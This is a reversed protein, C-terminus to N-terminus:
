NTGEKKGGEYKAAEQVFLIWGHRLYAMINANIRSSLDASVPLAENSNIRTGGVDVVPHKFKGKLTVGFPLHIPSKELALHYYMDGALNNVGGIEMLYDGFGVKFPNVQLLDDHFAGSININDIHIPESGDILMLHTIREIKGQRAFKLNSGKIDFRANLSEPNMFMDPFMDFRCGFTANIEGTFDKLEPTKDTLQPFIPYFKMFEFDHVQAKLEMFINDLSCTSFTWDVVATCYPAGVTLKRLTAVGDKVIIDTSLPAFKYELCKAANSFLSVKADINRPIAVCISDTATLPLMPAVKFVSDPNLGQKILAGYYGWSLQNIDVNSFNIDAIMKLPTAAYSTLFPELGNIESLLSFGTNSLQINKTTLKINNLDTNIDVESFDIPYLYQSTSFKGKEIRIDANLDLMGMITSLIGGGDYEVVLPTHKVRDAILADDSGHTEPVTKYSGSVSSTLGGAANLSLHNASFKNAGSNASIFNASVFLIGYPDPSGSVTDAANLHIKLKNLLLNTGLAMTSISDVSFDFGLKTGTYDTFPYTPIHVKFSTKVNKLRANVKKGTDVNLSHSQIDGSVEIDSIGNKGLELANGNFKVDGKLYGSLKMPLSPMFYSLSEMLPSQFNFDGDFPQQDGTINSIRAIGELSIGEGKLRLEAISLSTNESIDPDFNFEMVLYIDDAEIKKSKPPEMLLNADSINVVASFFPLNDFTFDEFKIPEVHYPALLEATLNIPLKGTIGDPLKIKDLLVVPLHRIFDFVNEIGLCLKVDKLEIGNTLVKIDGNIDLKLGGYSMSLNNVGVSLDPLSPTIDTTFKLPIDGQLAYEQYRGNVLGDFGIKYTNRSEKVLFFNELKLNAELDGQLSFFSFDVPSVVKIEGLEVEPIKKMKPLKKKLINFNTVTDNVMVVNVLPKEILIDQLIIKNKMLSHLNIKGEIKAVSALSDHNIPLHNLVQSSSDDLSKSIVELSDLEFQLWPYSHWIKYDLSGIKIDALLYESSKEEIFKTIREPSLYVLAWWIFVIILVILIGMIWGITKLTTIWPNIHHKATM